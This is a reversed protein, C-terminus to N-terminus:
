HIKPSTGGRSDRIGKGTISGRGGEKRRQARDAKSELFEELLFVFDWKMMQKFATLLSAKFKLTKKVKYDPGTLEDKTQTGFEPKDVECRIFFTLYPRVQDGSAKLVTKEGKKPKRKNFFKVFPSIITNEWCDVHLGGKATNIGNVFSVHAINQLIDAEPTDGEVVVCEDGSDTIFRTMKNKKDPYFLRAYAELNKIKLKEDNFIVVMGTIMAIEYAYMKILSILDDDIGPNKATPYKFYKYDPTFSVKTYGKKTTKTVKPDSCEKGNDWYNQVFRAKDESSIHDIIFETSFINTLKSGMGNRGSTKREQTDDFNTGAGMQGFFVESPYLEMMYEEKKFPKFTYEEKRVPICYGDNFFIFEGSESEITIEIKKMLSGSSQESRWKNDIINSGIERIINYLGSNFNINKQVVKDVSYIWKQCKLTKKSGIYTDPRHLPHEFSSLVKGKKSM